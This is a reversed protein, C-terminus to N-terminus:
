RFVTPSFNCSNNSAPYNKKKYRSIISTMHYKKKGQTSFDVIKWKRLVTLSGYHGGSAGLINKRDGKGQNKKAELMGMGANFGAKQWLDM